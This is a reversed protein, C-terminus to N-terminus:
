GRRPPRRTLLGIAGLGLLVLSAPEPIELQFGNVVNFNDSNNDSTFRVLVDDTGNSTFTFSFPNPAGVFNDTVYDVIDFDTAETAFSAGGDTSVEIDMTGSQNRQDVHWSTWEFWGAGLDAGDLTVTLVAGNGENGFWGATLEPLDYGRDVYIGHEGKSDRDVSRFGGVPSDVTIEIGSITQTHPAGGDTEVFNDFGAESHGSDPTFNVALIPSAHAANMGIWTTVMAAAFLTRLPSRHM